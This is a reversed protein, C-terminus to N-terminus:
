GVEYTMTLTVTSTYSGSPLYISIYEVVGASTIPIPGTVSTTIATGLDGQTPFSATNANPSYYVTPTSTSGSVSVSLGINTTLKETSDNVIQLVDVLETYTANGVYGVSLTATTTTTTAATWTAFGLSNAGVYNPGEAFYIPDTTVPAPSVSVNQSIIVAGFVLSPLLAAIAIATIVYMKKKIM